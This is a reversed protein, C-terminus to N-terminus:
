HGGGAFGAIHTGIDEPLHKRRAVELSFKLEMRAQRALRRQEQLAAIRAVREFNLDTYDDEDAVPVVRARTNAQGIKLLNGKGEIKHLKGGITVTKVM